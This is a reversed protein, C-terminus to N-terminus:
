LMLSDWEELGRGLWGVLGPVMGQIPPAERWGAGMCFAWFPLLRPLTPQFTTPTHSPQTKSNPCSFHLTCMPILTLTRIRMHTLITIFTPITHRHGAPLAWPLCPTLVPM